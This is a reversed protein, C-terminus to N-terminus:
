HGQPRARTFNARAAWLRASRTAVELLTAPHLSNVGLALLLANAADCGRIRIVSHDRARAGTTATPPSCTGCSTTPASPFSISRPSSAPLAIAAAPVEIMAGLPDRRRDRPGPRADDRVVRQLLRRVALVEERSSIMPLLVRVPWYGSARARDRAVPKSCRRARWRCASAACASRPNQEGRLGPRHLRGQGRRLDLTRITVTRGTAWCWTATPASSNRRTRCREDRQLFLSNRHPVPWGPRAWRADRGRGGAIRREGVAQHRRRRTRLPNAGCATRNSANRPVSACASAITACTPPTPNASSCAAAATSWWCTARRQREASGGGRRRDATPHLSRAHDRQAVVRQQRQDGGGDGRAVAIARTRGPRRQRHGSRAPWAGAPRGRPPAPACAASRGPRHRRRPQAPLCRGHRRVGRRHPRAAPAPRLRGFLPRRPDPRRPRLLEPDDLLLAHWTSFEGVEHALRASAPARATRANRLGADIAAICGRALEGEVDDIREERVELAHPLRVRARGARLRALRRARVPGPM